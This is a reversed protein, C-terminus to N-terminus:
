AVVPGASLIAWTWAQGLLAIAVVLLATAVGTGADTWNSRSFRKWFILGAAFLIYVQPMVVLAISFRTLMEQFFGDAADPWPLAFLLVISLPLSFGLAASQAISNRWDKGSARLRMALAASVALPLLLVLPNM